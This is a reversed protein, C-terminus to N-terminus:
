DLLSVPHFFYDLVSYDGLPHRCKRQEWELQMMIVHTATQPASLCPEGQLSGAVGLSLHAM